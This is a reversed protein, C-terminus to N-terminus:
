MGNAKKKLTDSVEGQLEQREVAGLKVGYLLETKLKHELFREIDERTDDPKVEISFGSEPAFEQAGNCSRSSVITVFRTTHDGPDVEKAIGRLGDITRNRETQSLQDLADIIIYIPRRNAVLLRVLDDQIERPDDYKNFRKQRPEAIGACIQDWFTLVIYGWCNDENGEFEVYYYM